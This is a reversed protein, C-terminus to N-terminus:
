KREFMGAEHWAEGYEGGGRMNATAYVGGREVFAIVEPRFRPVESIDFGGYGYLMTRNSGDKKLDKKHTVFVPVRTGDRSTAFRRETTYLSADFTLKPPEFPASKGTAADFRFVTTPYLPSTFAYFIDPRDYRGVPGTVTGLGPTAISGSASGDLSYFKVDSAVDVLRNVVIKQAIMSASE